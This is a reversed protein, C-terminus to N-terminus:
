IITNAHNKLYVQKYQNNTEKNAQQKTLKKMQCLFM